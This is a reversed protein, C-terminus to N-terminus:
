RESRPRWLVYLALGMGLTAVGALSEVPREAVSYTAMWLSLALFLLPGVPWTRARYPRRAAPERRRLVFAAVITLAAFLSLTFGIYVLLQDFTATVALLAAMAGQLAVATWPAGAQNKRAFLRPFLADEAMAQYVRPGALVMANISSVLAVAILLSLSQGARPGFLSKAVIHGVEVQGALEAPPVAYFFVLNLALYLLVVLATGVVLARPLDRSPQRIEGALYAAGNWGSYAFSVFILAVALQGPRPVSAASLHSWSGTGVTLGGVVLVLLLAVKLVTFGVLFRAGWTVSVMHLATTVAILLVAVTQAHVGPVVAELYSGSAIAAAAIPASFGVVLSIWGSLFGVAPHFARRLYVYEGGARPMMAGLEAYVDAGGLALAGGALWVLLVWVPSLEALLFGTTTFIGTGIMSAIVVSTASWVGLPRGESPTM